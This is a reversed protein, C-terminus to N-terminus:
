KTVGENVNQGGENAYKAPFGSPMGVPACDDPNEAVKQQLPGVEM